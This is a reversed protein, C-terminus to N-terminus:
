RIRLDYPLALIVPEKGVLNLFTNVKALAPQLIEPIPVTITPATLDLGELPGLLSELVSRAEPLILLETKEGSSLGVMGKAAAIADDLTGLEDILGIAKAQRGTYVRGGTLKELKAFEM